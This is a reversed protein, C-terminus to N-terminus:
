AHKHFMFFAAYINDIDVFMPFCLDELNTGQVLGVNIQLACACLRITHYPLLLQDVKSTDDPELDWSFQGVTRLFIMRLILQYYAVLHSDNICHANRTQSM